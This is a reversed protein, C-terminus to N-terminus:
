KARAVAPAPTAPAATKERPHAGRWHRVAAGAVLAFLVVAVLVIEDKTLRM